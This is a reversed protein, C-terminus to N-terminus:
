FHSVYLRVLQKPKEEEIETDPDRWPRMWDVPHAYHIMGPHLTPVDIEQVVKGACHTAARNMFSGDPAREGPRWVYAESTIVFRGLYIEPTNPAHTVVVETGIPWPGRDDKM